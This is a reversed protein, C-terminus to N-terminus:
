TRDPEHYQHIEIAVSLRKPAYPLEKLIKKMRPLHRKLSFATTSSIVYLFLKDGEMRGPRAMLAPFLENWEHVLEEWFPNKVELKKMLAAAADGFTKEADPVDRRLAVIDADVPLDNIVFRGLAEERRKRAAAARRRKEDDPTM